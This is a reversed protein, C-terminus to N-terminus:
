FLIIIWGRIIANRAKHNIWKLKTKLENLYYFEHDQLSDSYAPWKTFLEVFKLKWCWSTLLGNMDSVELKEVEVM